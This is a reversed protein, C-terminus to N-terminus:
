DDNSSGNTDNNSDDSFEKTFIGVVMMMITFLEISEHHRMSNSVPIVIGHGCTKKKKKPIFLQSIEVCGNNLNIVMEVSGLDSMTKATIMVEANIFKAVALVAENFERIM